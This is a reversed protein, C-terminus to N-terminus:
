GVSGRLMLHASVYWSRVGADTIEPDCDAYLQLGPRVSVVFMFMAGDIGISYNMACKCFAAAALAVFRQRCCIYKFRMDLCRMNQAGCLGVHITYQAAQHYIYLKKFRNQGGVGVSLM